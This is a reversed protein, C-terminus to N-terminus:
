EALRELGKDTLAWDWDRPCPETEPTGSGLTSFMGIQKRIVRM